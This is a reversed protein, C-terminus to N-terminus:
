AQNSLQANKTKWFLVVEFLALSACRAPPTSSAALSMRTRETQFVAAM